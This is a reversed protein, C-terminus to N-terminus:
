IRKRSNKKFKKISFVSGMENKYYTLNLNDKIFRYVNFPNLNTNNNMYNPILHYKNDSARTSALFVDICNGNTINTNDANIM